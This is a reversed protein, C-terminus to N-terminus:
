SSEHLQKFHIKARKAAVGFSLCSPVKCVLTPVQLSQDNGCLVALNLEKQRTKCSQDSENLELSFIIPSEQLVAVAQDVMGFMVTGLKVLCLSKVDHKQLFSEQTKCQTIDIAQQLNIHCRPISVLTPMEDQVCALVKLHDNSPCKM